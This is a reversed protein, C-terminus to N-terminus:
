ALATPAGLHYGQGADHTECLHGVQEASEVGQAIVVADLSKALVVMSSVWEAAAQLGQAQIVLPSDLKVYQPPLERLVKASVPDLGLRDIGFSAGAMRVMAAFSRAADLDLSCGYCSVEFSMFRASAGLERLQARLWDDFPKHGLSQASVNVALPKREVSKLLYAKAMSVIAKDVEPMLRHRTAMPIFSSAAVLQGQKDVLRGMVETHLVAENAFMVVPQGMLSWRGESLATEILDRWGLSGLGDQEGSADSLVHLANRGTHRAAEIAMDLKALLIGKKRHEAFYVVGMSFSAKDEGDLVQFARDLASQFQQCAHLGVDDTVGTLVFAFSAGGLRAAISVTPGFVVAGHEGVAQLLANGKQYSTGTNFDKLGNVEVGVILGHTVADQGELLAAFRLDFSRRNDLGTVEDQMVQKRFGEAKSVEEDLIEAIRRSMDNMARVVRALERARPKGAIQEFRKEQVAKATREIASLPNLILKLLVHTLALAALYVLGVWTAVELSSAWLYQYAHAPQSQVVVKGLQQWGSSVFAEGGPPNLPFQQTFWLPVQPVKEPLEKTLLVANQSDVLVIRQFYGRDFVSDVQMETLVPDQRGMVQALRLSLSTAADQAHSGLQQELYDRTGKINLVMLGALVALFLVSLTLFLQRRLTM